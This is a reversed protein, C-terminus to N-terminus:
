NNVPRCLAPNSHQGCMSWENSPGLWIEHMKLTRSPTNHRHIPHGATKLFYLQKLPPLTPEHCDFTSQTLKAPQRSKESCGPVPRHSSFSVLAVPSKNETQCNWLKALWTFGAPPRTAPKEFALEARNLSVRQSRRQAFVKSAKGSFTTFNCCFYSLDWTPTLLIAKM